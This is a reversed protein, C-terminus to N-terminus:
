RSVINNFITLRKDAYALVCGCACAYSPAAWSLYTVVRHGASIGEKLVTLLQICASRIMELGFSAQQAQPRTPDAAQSSRAPRQWGSPSGRPYEDDEAPYAGKVRPSRRRAVEDDYEWKRAPCATTHISM